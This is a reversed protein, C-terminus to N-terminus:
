RRGNEIEKRLKDIKEDIVPDVLLVRAAYLIYLVEVANVVSEGRFASYCFKVKLWEGLLMLPFFLLIVLLGKYKTKMKM